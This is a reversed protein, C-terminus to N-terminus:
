FHGQILQNCIIRFQKHKKLENIIELQCSKYLQGCLGFKISPLHQSIYKLYKINPETIDILLDYNHVLWKILTNEARAQEFFGRDCKSFPSVCFYYRVQRNSLWDIRHRKRYSRVRASCFRCGVCSEEAEFYFHEEYKPPSQKKNLYSHALGFYELVLNYRLIYLTAENKDTMPKIFNSM